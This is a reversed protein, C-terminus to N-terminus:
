KPMWIQTPVGLAGHWGGPFEAALAHTKQLRGIARDRDTKRFEKTKEFTIVLAAKANGPKAAERLLTDREYHVAWGKHAARERAKEVSADLPAVHEPAHAELIQRLTPVRHAM